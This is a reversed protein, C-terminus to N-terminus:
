KKLTSLHGNLFAVTREMKMGRSGKVLIVDGPQVYEALRKNLEDLAEFHEALLNQNADKAAQILGRAQNGTAFIAALDSSAALRGIEQHLAPSREGLELMDACVLIKRGFIVFSQLTALANRMSVPNANYSDDVLWCWGVKQLVFRGYKFRFSKLARAIEAYPVRMVQGCAVAALANYVNARSPSNLTLLNKGNVRFSLQRCGRSVQVDSASYDPKKPSALGFSILKRDKTRNPLTALFKDDQNYIITKVREGALIKSKEAFVKAPSKLLELHSEGINTMVVIDPEAIKTLWAIDGPRNTGFEIIACEHSPRLELLTQPVGIHNNKTGENYLIRYRRKLVAALLNKTTTKGASGTLAIIPCSFQRRYFRAVFGFAKVTDPVLIVPVQAPVTVNRRSIVVAVAGQRVVAETFEHGDFKDGVIAIFLDGKQIARSDTSVGRIQTAPDGQLLRGGTATVIDSVRLKM